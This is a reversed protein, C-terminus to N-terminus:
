PVIRIWVYIITIVSGIFLFIVTMLFPDAIYLKYFYYILIAVIVLKFILKM